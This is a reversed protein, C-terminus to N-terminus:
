KRKRPQEQSSEHTAALKTKREGVSLIVESYHGGLWAKHKEADALISAFEADTTGTAIRSSLDDLLDTLGSQDNQQEPEAQVPQAAAPNGNKKPASLNLHGTPTAGAAGQRAQGFAEEIGISGEKIATKLGTLEGLNELDVDEISKRNLHALITDGAVGMKAFYDFAAQRRKSLTTATGIAAQKAAELVPQWFSRPVIKFIANRFAIASAANGTTIIMDDGYRQGNKKTIRRQVEMAVAVNNELDHAFGQATIYRDDEAIIRAGARLNRWSSAVIEAFRVSPGEIRKGDRPLNYFCSAATDEDLTAMETARAKFKAISRPYRNATAVQMDIEARVLPSMADMTTLEGAFGTESEVMESM